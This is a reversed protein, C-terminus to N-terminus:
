KRGAGELLLGTVEAAVERPVSRAVLAYVEGQKEPLQHFYRAGLRRLLSALRPVDRVTVKERGLVDLADQLSDALPLEAEARSVPSEDLSFWRGGTGFPRMRWARMGGLLGTVVLAIWASRYLAPDLGGPLGSGRDALAALITPGGLAVLVCGALVIGGVASRLFSDRGAIFAYGVLYACAGAVLAIVILSGLM